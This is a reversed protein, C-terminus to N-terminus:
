KRIRYKEILGLRIIENGFDLDNLAVFVGVTICDLGFVDEGDVLRGRQASELGFVFIPADDLFDDLFLILGFLLEPFSKTLSFL